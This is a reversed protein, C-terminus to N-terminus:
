LRENLQRNYDNNIFLLDTWSLLGRQYFTQYFSVFSFNHGTLYHFMEHFTPLDKYLESFTFEFYVLGIRNQQM